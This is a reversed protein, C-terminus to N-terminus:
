LVANFNQRFTTVNLVIINRQFQAVKIDQTAIECKVRHTEIHFEFIHWHKAFHYASADNL